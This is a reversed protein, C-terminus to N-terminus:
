VEGAPMWTMSPKGVVSELPIVLRVVDARCEGHVKSRV